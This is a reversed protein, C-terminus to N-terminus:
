RIKCSVLPPIENTSNQLIHCYAELLVSREKRLTYIVWKGEKLADLLGIEKLLKLHRSVLPQSLKLTDCIECVCVEKERLILAIIKLRNTDSMAKSIRAITEIEKV